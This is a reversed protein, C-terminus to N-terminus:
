HPFHTKLGAVRHRVGEVGGSVVERAEASLDFGWGVVKVDQLVLLQRPRHLRQTQCLNVQNDSFTLTTRLNPNQKLFIYNFTAM